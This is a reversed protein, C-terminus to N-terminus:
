TANKTERETSEDAKAQGTNLQQERSSINYYWLPSLIEIYMKCLSLPSINHMDVM